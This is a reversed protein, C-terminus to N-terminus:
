EGKPLITMDQWYTVVIEKSDQLWDCGNWRAKEVKDGGWGYRHIVWYEGPKKPSRSAPNWIMIGAGNAILHDAIKEIFGKQFNDGIKSGNGYKTNSSIETLKTKIDPM